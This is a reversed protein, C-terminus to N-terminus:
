IYRLTRMDSKTIHVAFAYVVEDDGDGMSDEVKKLAEISLPAFEKLENIKDQKEANKAVLKDYLPTSKDLIDLDDPSVYRNLAKEVRIRLIKIWATDDDKRLIASRQTPKPPFDYTSLDTSGKM